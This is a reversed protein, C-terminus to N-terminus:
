NTLNQIRYIAESTSGHQVVDLLTCGFRDDINKLGASDEAVVGIDRVDFAVRAPQCVPARLRRQRAAVQKEQYFRIAGLRSRLEPGIQRGIKRTQFSAEVRQVIVSAQLVQKVLGSAIRYHLRCLVVEEVPDVPIRRGARRACEPDRCSEAVGGDIVANNM